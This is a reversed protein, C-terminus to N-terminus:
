GGYIAADPIRYREHDGVTVIWDDGERSWSVKSSDNVSFSAKNEMKEFYLTRLDEFQLDKQDRTEGPKITWITAGYTNRKVRFPCQLDLDKGGKSCPLNGSADTDVPWPGAEPAKGGAEAVGEIHFSLTYQATENRRAASRMMYVQVMYDGAVTLKGKFQRGGTEGGFIAADRGPKTGPAFVNFNTAGHSTKMSVEMTQGAGAHILYDVEEYGRIKGTITAESKGKAFEVRETRANQDAALATFSILFAFVFVFCNRM